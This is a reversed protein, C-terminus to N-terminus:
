APPGLSKAYAVLHRWRGPRLVDRLAEAHRALEAETRALQQAWAECRATLETADQSRAVVERALSQAYADREAVERALAQAHADREAVERALSQAHADIRAVEAALELMRSEREAIQQALAQAAADREAIERGLAQAHADRAAVERALGQAHAEKDTLDHALAQVRGQGAGVERVLGAVSTRLERLQQDRDLLQREFFGQAERALLAPRDPADHLVWLMYAARSAKDLLQALEALGFPLPTAADGRVNLWSSKVLRETEDVAKRLHTRAEDVADRSIALLALWHRADLIKNGLLPSYAVVDRTACAEYLGQAEALRGRRRALEAGAFLLSVQWRLRHPESTAAAAYRQIAEMAERYSDDSITADLLQYVQGCLAAGYDVSDPPNTAVVRRQLDDLVERSGARMGIAVLGKVIWPNRYDRGFASVHFDHSVPIPWTTEDYPVGEGALPDAMCLFLVWEAVQTPVVHAPVEVWSRPEHHCKLGGGAVQLYGKELLFYRGCYEALRAWDFVHLHHPNPDHGTEDLWCDPASVMLRGAPKLVRRLERLLAGPDPVHEITEFSAVFDISHDPLFGLAQADGTRFEIRDRQGYHATAYEVAFPSLDVGIVRAAQSNHLLLHSGYGLGCAVDLVVDGPRVVDAARLYRICHADSRRGTERLMDTHLLREPGLVALDHHVRAADPVRELLVLIQWGDRELAAYPNALYYAPHKRFGAEFSRSEWWARSEVTLHWHGDRDPTTAVQLFVYRRSVRYLERLAVPVDAPALHELCDTSVITEFAADPFPLSLVSAELFRGPWRASARNLAVTSVDLGTADVGRALLAGVLDGGGSGVDLVRGHGCTRVVLDGLRSPDGSFEGIRDARSWYEDYVARYDLQPDHRM